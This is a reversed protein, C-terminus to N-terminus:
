ADDLERRLRQLLRALRTRVGAPSLGVAGGIEASTLGAAYRLAVITRDDPDLRALANALDLEAARTAPDGGIGTALAALDPDIAIERLQRRGRRRLLQKAENAAVAMLWPRLREPDRLSRIRRWALPWAAQVAEQAIEVDGSIVFCVRAMDDHHAAVIRAFAVEDGRAARGLVGRLAEADIVADM